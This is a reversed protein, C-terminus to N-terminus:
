RVIVRRQKRLMRLISEPYDASYNFNVGSYGESDLGINDLRNYDYVAMKIITPQLAMADKCHTYEIATETAQDLILTLLDDKDTGSIKLLMKLKELM